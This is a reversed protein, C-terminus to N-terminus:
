TLRGSWLLSVAGAAMAAILGALTFRWSIDREQKTYGIQSGINKYVSELEQVSTATHFSGGTADALGQLATRHAADHLTLVIRREQGWILFVVAPGIVGILGFAVLLRHRLTASKLYWGIM